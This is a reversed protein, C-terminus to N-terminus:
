SIGEVFEIINELGSPITYDNIAKYSTRNMFSYPIMKVQFLKETNSISTSCYISDGYDIIHSNPIDSRYLWELVKNNSDDDPRIIDMIEQQSMYQGYNVSDPNSIDLLKQELIDTNYQKLAISFSVENTLINNVPYSLITLFLTFLICLNLIFKM